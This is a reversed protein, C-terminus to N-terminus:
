DKDPQPTELGCLPLYNLVRLGGLPSEALSIEGGHSLIIDRTITLGLGIGGTSKNRSSELRYFARFVDDRKEKPIGPGNDDFMLFAKKNRIGM